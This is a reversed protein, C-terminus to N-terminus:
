PDADGKQEDALKRCSSGPGPSRGSVARRTLEQAMRLLQQGVTSPLPAGEVDHELDAVVGHRQRLRDVLGVLVHELPHDEDVTARLEVMTDRLGTLSDRVQVRLDRLEEDEPHRRAAMELQMSVVALQQAFQDHLRAAIRQREEDVGLHSVRNFWTANYVTVALPEAIRALEPLVDDVSPEEEAHEVVLVHPASRSGWRCGCTPAGARSATVGGAPLQLGVPEGDRRPDAARGPLDRM